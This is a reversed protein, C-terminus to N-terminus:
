RQYKTHINSIINLIDNIFQAKYNSLVINNTPFRNQVCYTLAPMTSARLLKAKIKNSM